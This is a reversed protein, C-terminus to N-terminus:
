PAVKWAGAIRRVRVIQDRAGQGSAFRLTVLVISSDRGDPASKMVRDPTGGHKKWEDVAEKCDTKSLPPDVATMLRACDGAMLATYYDLVAAEAAAVDAPALAAAASASTSASASPSASM